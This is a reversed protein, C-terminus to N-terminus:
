ARFYACALNPYYIPSSQKEGTYKRSNKEVIASEGSVAAQSIFLDQTNTLRLDAPVRNGASLYVCDGIVLEEAPVELFVGGRKVKVSTHILREMEESAHRSKMEQILRIGGSVFVMALLIVSSYVGRQEDPQM